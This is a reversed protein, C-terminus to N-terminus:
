FPSQGNSDRPALMLTGHPPITYTFSSNHQNNWPIVLPNGNSDFIDIHGSIPNSSNNVLDMRTAWGGSMAFQPFVITNLVWSNTMVPVQVTSFAIGSFRFAVISVAVSSQVTVSGHFTNGLSGAPLLETIFRPIQANAPLSFTTSTVTSGDSAFLTLTIQAATGNPNPNAIALGLNRGISQLVDVAISTQTTLQTPLVAAQSQVIGNSVSAYTLTAAPFANGSDVTVVAYGTHITGSEVETIPLPATGVYGVPVPSTAGGGSGPNNVVIGSNLSSRLVPPVFAVLHQAGLYLTVLKTQGLSVSSNAVFSSGHIDLSLAQTSSTDNSVVAGVVPVPIPSAPPTYIQSFTGSDAPDSSSYQSEL